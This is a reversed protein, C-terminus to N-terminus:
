ISPFFPVVASSPRVASSTAGLGCGISALTALAKDACPTAVARSLHALLDAKTSLPAPHNSWPFRGRPAAGNRLEDCRACLGIASKRGFTM